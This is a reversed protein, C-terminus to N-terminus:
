FRFSKSLFVSSSLVDATAYFIQRNGALAVERIRQLDILDVNCGRHKAFTTPPLIRASASDSCSM